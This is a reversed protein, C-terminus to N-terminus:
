FFDQLYKIYLNLVLSDLFYSYYNHEYFFFIEASIASVQARNNSVQCDWMLPNSDIKARPVLTYLVDGLPQRVGM